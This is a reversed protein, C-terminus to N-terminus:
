SSGRVLRQLKALSTRDDEETSLTGVFGGKANMLYVTATHDM